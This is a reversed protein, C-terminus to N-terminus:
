ELLILSCANSRFLLACAVNLIHQHKREVMSNRQPTYSCSFQHIIGHQKVLQTFAFEPANDSHIVTLVSKYLTSAHNIFAPFVTLVDNENCLM